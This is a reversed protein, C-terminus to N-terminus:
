RVNHKRQRILEVPLLHRRGKASEVAIADFAPSLPQQLRLVSLSDGSTKAHSCAASADQTTANAQDREVSRRRSRKAAKRQNVRMAHARAIRNNRARAAASQDETSLFQVDLQAAVGARHAM